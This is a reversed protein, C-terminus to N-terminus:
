LRQPALTPSWKGHGLTACEGRRSGVIEREVTTVMVLGSRELLTNGVWDFGVLLPESREGSGSQGRCAARM